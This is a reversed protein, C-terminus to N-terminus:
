YHRQIIAGSSAATFGAVPKYRNINTRLGGIVDGGM